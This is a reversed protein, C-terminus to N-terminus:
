ASSTGALGHGSRSRDRAPQEAPVAPARPLEFWFVSGTGPASQCGLRGGYAEVFRKVTALGLGAGSAASTGRVFPEFIRSRIEAPVGPGTDEVEVRVFRGTDRVRVSVRRITSDGMYKIANRVLNQVLSTLVGPACAVRRDPCPELEVETGARAAESEVCELVGQIGERVDATEGQAPLAGARAFELLSDVLSRVRQLARASRDVAGAAVQDDGLRAKCLELGVGVAMLPSVVDHAVRGAFMDLESSRRQVAELSRRWAIAAVITASMALIGIVFDFSLTRVIVWHRVSAIHNGLRQGQSANFVLLRELTGDLRSGARSLGALSREAASWNRADVAALTQGFSADFAAWADILDGHLTQEGPFYPLALYTALASDIDQRDDRPPELPTASAGATQVYRQLRVEAAHLQGRAKSLNEVSPMANGVIDDVDADIAHGVVADVASDTVFAAVVAAMLALQILALQASRQSGKKM